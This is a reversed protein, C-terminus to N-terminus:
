HGLVNRTRWRRIRIPGLELIRGSLHCRGPYLRSHSGRQPFVLAAQAKLNLSLSNANSTAFTPRMRNKKDIISVQSVHKSLWKMLPVFSRLTAPIVRPRRSPMRLLSFFRCTTFIPGICRLPTHYTEGDRPRQWRESQLIGKSRAKSYAFLSPMVSDNYGKNTFSM